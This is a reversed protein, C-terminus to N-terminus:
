IHRDHHNLSSWCPLLTLAKGESDFPIHWSHQMICLSTFSFSNLEDDLLLEILPLVAESTKISIYIILMATVRLLTLIVKLYLRKNKRCNAPWIKPQLRHIHCCIQYWFQGTIQWLSITKHMVKSIKSFFIYNMFVCAWVFLLFAFSVLIDVYFDGNSPLQTNWLAMEHCLIASCQKNGVVYSFVKWDSLFITLSVM